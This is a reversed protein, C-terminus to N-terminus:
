HLTSSNRNPFPSFTNVAVDGESGPLRALFCANRGEGEGVSFVRGVSRGAVSAALFDNPAKGYVQCLTICQIADYRCCISDLWTCLGRCQVKQEM